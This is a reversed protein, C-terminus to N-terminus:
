RNGQNTAAPIPFGQWPAARVSNNDLAPASLPGKVTTFHSTKNDPTVFVITTDTTAALVSTTSAVHASMDQGQVTLTETRVLDAAIAIRGSLDNRRNVFRRLVLAAVDM